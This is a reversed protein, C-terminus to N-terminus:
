KPPPILFAAATSIKEEHKTTLGNPAQGGGHAPETHGGMAWSDLFRYLVVLVGGVYRCPVVRVGVCCLVVRGCVRWWACVVFCFVVCVGVCWWAQASVLVAIARVVLVAGRVRVCCM